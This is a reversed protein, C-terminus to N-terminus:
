CHAFIEATGLISFCLLLFYSVAILKIKNGPVLGFFNECVPVKFMYM